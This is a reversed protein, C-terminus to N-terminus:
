TESKFAIHKADGSALTLDDEKSIGRAGQEKSRAGQGKSRAGQEKSKARQEKCLFGRLRIGWLSYFRM